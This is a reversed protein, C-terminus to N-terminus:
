NEKDDAGRHIALVEESNKTAASLCNDFFERASFQGSLSAAVMWDSLMSQLLEVRWGATSPTMYACGFRHQVVLADVLEQTEIGITLQTKM